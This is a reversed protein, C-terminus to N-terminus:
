RMSEMMKRWLRVSARRPLARAVLSMALTRSGIYRTLGGGRMADRISRAVEWSPMLRENSLRRVGASQQFRTDTGGPLVTIVRVDGLESAEESLAETFSLVFSKSAAYTAMFPLPQLAASSAVNVLTGKRRAGFRGLAFSSLRVLARANVDIVRLEASVDADAFPGRSGVGACNVLVDLDLDSLEGCLREVDDHRSLDAVLSRVGLSGAFAELRERDRDILVLERGDAYMQEALSRGIGSAAGTIVCAGPAPARRDRLMTLLGARRTIRPRFGFDRAADGSACLVDSFLGQAELPLRPRLKRAVFVGVGPVTVKASPRGLLEGMERFLQGISVPEGDTVFCTAGLARREGFVRVMADCLDDVHIISVRGPFDVWAPPAGREVMAALAMLHSERRMGPGYVWTPRVITFPLGAERVLRECALKSAGYGTLPNTPSDETLLERCDDDPLRDVAGISSTFVVRALCEDGRLAELLARTGEVNSRAAAEGGRYAADAALHFVAEHGRLLPAVDACRELSSVVVSSRQRIDEPLRSADRVVCTLAVAVGDIGDAILKRCLARGVFGTAGTVLVKRPSSHGQGSMRQRTIM